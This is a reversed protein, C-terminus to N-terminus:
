QSTEACYVHHNWRYGSMFVDYGKEEGSGDSGDDYDSNSDLISWVGDGVPTGYPKPEGAYTGFAGGRRVEGSACYKRGLAFLKNFVSTNLLPEGTQIDFDTDVLGGGPQTTGVGDGSVYRNFYVSLNTADPLKCTQTAKGDIVDDVAHGSCCRSSSSTREGLKLCCQFDTTSFIEDHALNSSGDSRRATLLSGVDGTAGQAPAIVPLTASTGTKVRPSDYPDDATLTGGFNGLNAFSAAAFTAPTTITSDFLGPVIADNDNSCYLPEYYTQPIGSLEFKGLRKLYFYSNGPAQSRSVAPRIGNYHQTGPASFQINIYNHDVVDATFNTVALIGSDPYYCYACGLATTNCATAGVGAPNYTMGPLIAGLMDPESRPNCINKQSGDKKTTRLLFRGGSFDAPIYSPLQFAITRNLPIPTSSAQGDIYTNGFIGVPSYPAYWKGMFNFITRDIDGFYVSVMSNTTDLVPATSAFGAGSTFNLQACGGTSDQVPSSDPCHFGFDGNRRTDTVAAITDPAETYTGFPTMNTAHLIPSQYNLCTFNSPQIKLRDTRSWDITDDAFKRVWGGGCCSNSAATGLTKWQNQTLLSIKTNGFSDSGATLDTSGSLGTNTTVSSFRSYREPESPDFFAPRRTNMTESVDDGPINESYISLEKGVERCCYNQKIDYSSYFPDTSNPAPQAQGCVLYEEWYRKEAENGFYDDSFFSVQQAHMKNPMCDFNTHCVSGARRMCANKVLTPSTIQSLGLEGFEVSVFPSNGGSDTSEAGCANQSRALAGLTALATLKTDGVSSQLATVNADKLYWYNKDTDFTPCSMTHLPVSYQPFSTDEWGTYLNSNCSGKQSIYDTRNSVDPTKHTYLPTVESFQFQLTSNTNTLYRGPRCLGWDNSTTWNLAANASLNTQIDSPLSALGSGTIYHRPRGPVDTDMGFINGDSIPNNQLSTISRSIEKNFLADNPNACHFNPACAFMKRVEANTNSAYNRRCLSGAGRYVCRKRASTPLNGQQLIKNLTKVKTVTPDEVADSTFAPVNTSAATVDACVYEWGLQTICESDNSCMHFKQCSAAENQYAHTDSLSPDYDVSAATAPPRYESVGIVHATNQAIDGMPGNIALYLKKSTSTVIRGKGVAFWTVGDFSGIVAGRNFGFWDKQYGNVYMAAQAKLRALRQVQATGSNRHAFPLMTPPVYCARGFHTDEFNGASSNGSYSDPSTTYGVARLGTGFFSSPFATFSSLWSDKPCNTCPQYFGSRTEILYAQNLDVNVVKAPMAKDLNLSMQGLIANMSHSTNVPISRNDGDLYFFEEGEQMVTTLGFLSTIDDVALGTDSRYFRHPVSRSSLNINLDQFPGTTGAVIPTECQIETPTGTSDTSVVKYTYAPCFNIKDAFSNQHCGCNTYLRELVTQIYMINQSDTNNCSSYSGSPYSGSVLYSLTYPDTLSYTRLEQICERDLILQELRAQADGVPDGGGTTTTSPNSGNSCIYFYEPYNTYASPNALVEQLASVFASSSTNIGSKQSGNNVCQGELCCDYGLAQCSSLSCNATSNTANNNYDIKLVVNSLNLFINNISTHEIRNTLNTGSSQYLYIEDSAIQGLCNSCLQTVLYKATAGTFSTPTAATPSTLNITGQCQSSGVVSDNLDIRLLKEASGLAFNQIQIPVARSRLQLNVNSGNVILDRFNLVLCYKDTFATGNNLFTDVTQGRLYLIDNKNSDITLTTAFGGVYWNAQTPLATETENDNEQESSDTSSLDRPAMEGLCSALLAIIFFQSLKFFKM